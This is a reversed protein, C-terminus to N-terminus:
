SVSASYPRPPRQPQHLRQHQPYAGITSTTTLNGNKITKAATTQNNKATQSRTKVIKQTMNWFEPQTQMIMIVKELDEKELNVFASRLVKYLNIINPTMELVLKKDVQEMNNKFYVM